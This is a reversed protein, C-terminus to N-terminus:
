SQYKVMNIANIFISADSITNMYTSGGSITAVGQKNFQTFEFFFYIFILRLTQSANKWKNFTNESVTFSPGPPRVSPACPASNLQGSHCTKM